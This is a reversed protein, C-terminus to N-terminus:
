FDPVCKAHRMGTLWSVSGVMDEEPLFRLLNKDRSADCQDQRQKASREIELHLEFVAPRRSRSSRRRLQRAVLLLLLAVQM